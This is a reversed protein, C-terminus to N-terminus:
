PSKQEARKKNLLRFFLASNESLARSAAPHKEALRFVEDFKDHRITPRFARGPKLNRLLMIDIVEALQRSKQGFAKAALRRARYAIMDAAQLPLHREKKKDPFSHEGIWSYQKRYETITEDFAHRWRPDSNQDLFFTIECDLLPYHEGVKKVFDRFFIEMVYAYSYTNDASFRQKHEKLHYHGILPIQRGAIEAMEYEFAEVKEDDWGYYPSDPNTMREDRDLLEFYHFFPANYKDLIAKWHPCFDSWEDVTAMYGAIVPVEAGKKKGQPDHTGSEDLYAVAVKVSIKGSFLSAWQRFHEGADNSAQREHRYEATKMFCVTIVM